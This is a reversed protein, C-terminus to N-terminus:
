VAELHDPAFDAGDIKVATATFGIVAYEGPFAGSFPPKVRVVQGLEFGGIPTGTDGNLIYSGEEATLLGSTVLANVGAITTSDETDIDWTGFEDNKPTQSNFRFLWAELDADVKAAGLIVKIRDARGHAIRDLFQQKTLKM